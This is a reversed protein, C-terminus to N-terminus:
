LSIMSKIQEGFQQAVKTGDFLLLQSITWKEILGFQKTPPLLDPMRSPFTASTKFINM